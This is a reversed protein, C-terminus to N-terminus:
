LSCYGILLPYQEHKNLIHICVWVLIYVTLVKFFSTKKKCGKETEIEGLTALVLCFWQFGMACTVPMSIFM